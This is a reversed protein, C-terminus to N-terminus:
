LQACYILIQGFNAEDINHKNLIDICLQRSGFCMRDTIRDNKFVTINTADHPLISFDKTIPTATFYVHPPLNLTNKLKLAEEDLGLGAIQEFDSIRTSFYKTILMEDMVHYENEKKFVLDLNDRTPMAYPYLKSEIWESWEGDGSVYMAFDQKNNLIINADTSDISSSAFVDDEDQSDADVKHKNMLMTLFYSYLLDSDQKWNNRAAQKLISKFMRPQLISDVGRFALYWNKKSIEKVNAFSQLANTLLGFNTAHADTSNQKVEAPLVAKDCIVVDTATLLFYYFYFHKKFVNQFEGKQKAGNSKSLAPTPNLNDWEDLITDVFSSSCYNYFRKFADLISIETSQIEKYNQSVLEDILTNGSGVSEPEDDTVDLLGGSATTSEKKKTHLSTLVTKKLGDKDGDLAFTIEKVSLKHNNHIAKVINLFMQVSDPTFIEGPIDMFELSFKNGNKSYQSCYHANPSGEYVPTGAIGGINSTADNVLDTPFKGKENFSNIPKYGLNNIAQVLDTLLYTKGSSTPGIVALRIVNGEFLSRSIADLSNQLSVKTFPSRQKPFSFNMHELKYHKDIILKLVDTYGSMVSSEYHVYLDSIFGVHRRQSTLLNHPQLALSDALRLKWSDLFNEEIWISEDPLGCLVNEILQPYRSANVGPRFAYYSEPLLLLTWSDYAKGALRMATRCRGILLSSEINLIASADVVSLLMDFNNVWDVPDVDDEQQPYPLSIFEISSSPLRFYGGQLTLSPFTFSLDLGSHVGLWDKRECLGELVAFFDSRVEELRSPHSFFLINVKHTKM